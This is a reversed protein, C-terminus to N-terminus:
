NKFTWCNEITHGPAGMHYKCNEAPNYWKPPPNSVQQPVEPGIMNGKMLTDYIESYSSPVPDIKPRERRSQYAQNEPQPTNKPFSINSVQPTTSPYPAFFNSHSPHHILYPASQYNPQHSNAPYHGTGIVHIDTEKKQFIPKKQKDVNVNADSLRGERIADEVQEGAIVVDSFRNTVSGLLKDFYPGQLTRVFLSAIEKEMLPPHVQSAKERWRQAYERFSEGETKKMRQLEFRDPIIDTVFQYQKVFVEALGRWTKTQNKDLHLFWVLAGGALSHQFCHIMLKENRHYLAMSRAYMTLHIVPDSKGEFKEFDPVKFKPPIELDPFLCFEQMDLSGYSETGQIIRMKEELMEMKNLMKAEEESVKGASSGAAMEHPTKATVIVVEAEEEKEENQIVKEKEPPKLAKLLELIQGVSGELNDIRQEMTQNPESNAAM